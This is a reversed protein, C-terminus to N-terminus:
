LKTPRQDELHDLLHPLSWPGRAVLERLADSRRGWDVPFQGGQFRDTGPVPAFTQGHATPSLGIDPEAIEGLRTILTEIENARPGDPLDDLLPAPVADPTTEGTAPGATKTSPRCGDALAVTVCLLVVLVRRM